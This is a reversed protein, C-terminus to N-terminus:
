CNKLYSHNANHESSNMACLIEDKNNILIYDPTDDNEAPYFALLTNADITSTSSVSVTNLNEVKNEVLYDPTDDNEAPYFAVLVNNDISSTVSAKITNLNEVKNEVLYDPTDDNEPPYFASFDNQAYLSAALLSALLGTTIIKKM